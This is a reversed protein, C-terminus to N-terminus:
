DDPFEISRNYEDFVRDTLPGLADDDKNIPMKSIFFLIRKGADNKRYKFVNWHTDDSVLLFPGIRKIKCDKFEADQGIWTLWEPFHLWGKTENFRCTIDISTYGDEVNSTAFIVRNPYNFGYKTLVTSVFIQSCDETFEIYFKGISKLAGGDKEEYVPQLIRYPKNYDQLWMYLTSSPLPPKINARFSLNYRDDFASALSIVDCGEKAAEERTDTKKYLIGNHVMYRGCNCSKFNSDTSKIELKDKCENCVIVTTDTSM